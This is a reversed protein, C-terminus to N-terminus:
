FFGELMLLPKTIGASRLRLADVFDLIAFGDALAMAQAARLLGHGYANAKLVAWIRAGGAHSRAVELNRALASSSITARIPRPMPTLIGRPAPVPWGPECLTRRAM